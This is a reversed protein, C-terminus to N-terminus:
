DFDLGYGSFHKVRFRWEARAADYGLFEAGQEETKKRLRKEFKEVEPGETHQQGTKKDICRVNLLTVEAPKNLGQGVPPKKTEDMYVLVECKNFQVINELDLRRVDTEGLFTIQGYGKRGVVFDKVRRCYGSDARELAALEQVKPDTFYDSHRLKPMMAEIDAGHEYAIAAEGARHGTISIYGNGRHNHEERFGDAKSVYKATPRETSKVQTVPLTEVTGNGNVNEPSSWNTQPSEPLLFPNSDAHVTDREKDLPGDNQVPTALERIDPTRKVAAVPSPEPQWIFLSRPNERPVFM